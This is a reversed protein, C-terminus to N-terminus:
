CINPTSTNVEFNCNNDINQNKCENVEMDNLKNEISIISNLLLVTKTLFENCKFFLQFLQILCKHLSNIALIKLRITIQIQIFQTM